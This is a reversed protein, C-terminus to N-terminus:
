DNDFVDTLQTVKNKGVSHVRKVRYYMPLYYNGQEERGFAGAECPERALPLVLYPLKAQKDLLESCSVHFYYLFTLVSVKRKM